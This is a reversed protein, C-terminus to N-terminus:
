VFFSDLNPEPRKLVAPGSFKRWPGSEEHVAKTRDPPHTQSFFSLAVVETAEDHYTGGCGRGVGLASTAKQEAVRTYVPPPPLAALSWLLFLLDSKFGDLRYEDAIAVDQSM